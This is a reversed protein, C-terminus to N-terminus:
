RNGGNGAIANLETISIGTKGLQYYGIGNNLFVMNRVIFSGVAEEKIGYESNGSVTGGDLRVSGGLLHIGMLNEELNVKSFVLSGSAGVTLAREAHHIELGEGSGSGALFFGKWIYGALDTDFKTM